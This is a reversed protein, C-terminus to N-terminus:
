KLNNKSNSFIGSLCIKILAYSPIALLMWLIGGLMGASLVIIFIELPHVQLSKAFILPQFIFNDATQIIGFLIFTKLLTIPLLDIGTHSSIIIAAFSFGIIPGIYPIINILAAFFAIALAYEINFIKLGIAYCSFLIFLQFGLGSFYRRLYYVISIMKGDVDTLYNTLINHIKEKIISSDRLMFFTMFLISFSALFINGLISFISDFLTTFSTIPLLSIIDDSKIQSDIGYSLLYENTNSIFQNIFKTFNNTDLNSNIIKIEEYILPYLLFGIGIIIFFIICLCVLSAITKNLGHKIFKKNIPFLIISFILSIFIYAFLFSLKWFLFILLFGLFITLFTSTNKKM